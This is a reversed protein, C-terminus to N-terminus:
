AAAQMAPAVRGDVLRVIRDAREAVADDHSVVVLTMGHRARLKALLDLLLETAASDLAGTPEDALLLRPDHVVARAVAVKQREGGSLQSPLHDLRHGLGVEELLTRARRRREDRRVRQAVLPVEVNAQASLMPLLHHLQFVFGVAHRRFDRAARGTPVPRGDVLVQGADPRDLSGVVQLLTSKGSGSPGTVVVFEGPGVELTAGALAAVRGDYTRSVGRVSVAAGSM